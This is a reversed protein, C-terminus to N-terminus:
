ESSRFPGLFSSRSRMCELAGDFGSKAQVPGGGLDNIAIQAILYLEIEPEIQKDEDVFSPRSTVM